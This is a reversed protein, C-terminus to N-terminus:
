NELKEKNLIYKGLDDLLEEKNIHGVCQLSTGVYESNVYCYKDINDHLWTLIDNMTLMKGKAIEGALFLPEIINKISHTPMDFFLGEDTLRQFLLEKEDKTSPRLTKDLRYCVNEVDKWISYTGNKVTLCYCGLTYEDSINKNYIFVKSGDTLIDGDNADDATWERFYESGDRLSMIPMGGLAEIIDGVSSHKKGGHYFDKICVYWHNKRIKLQVPCIVGNEIVYGVQELCEKVAEGNKSKIANILNDIEAKKM